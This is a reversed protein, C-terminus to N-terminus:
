PRLMGLLSERVRNSVRLVYTDVAEAMGDPVTTAPELEYWGEPLRGAIGELWRRSGM